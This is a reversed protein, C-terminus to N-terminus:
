KCSSATTSLTVSTNKKCIGINSGSHNTNLYDMNGNKIVWATCYTGLGSCNNKINTDDWFLGDGYPKLGRTTIVFEFLDVGFQNDGNNPGDIDVKISSCSDEFGMYNTVEDYEKPNCRQYRFRTIIFSAGNSLIGSATGDLSGYATDNLYNYSSGMCNNGAEDRCTKTVKIFENIRDFYAVKCIQPYEEECDPYATSNTFWTDIPGYKAVAMNHANSFDAYIKKVKAVTEAENTTGMMNPITLAAVVGIIGMTILMESLTFAIKKISVNKM